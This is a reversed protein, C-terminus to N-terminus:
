MRPTLPLALPQMSSAPQHAIPRTHQQSGGGYMHRIGCISWVTLACCCPFRAPPTCRGEAPPVRPSPEVPGLRLLALPEPGLGM